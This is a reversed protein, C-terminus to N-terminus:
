LLQIRIHPANNCEFEITTYSTTVISKRHHTPPLDLDLKSSINYMPQFFLDLHALAKNSATRLLGVPCRLQLNSGSVSPKPHPTQTARM